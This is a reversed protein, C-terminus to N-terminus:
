SKGIQKLDTIEVCELTLVTCDPIGEVGECHWCCSWGCISCGPGNHFGSELAFSDLEGDEGYEIPLHGKAKMAERWIEAKKMACM